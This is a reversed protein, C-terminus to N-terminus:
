VLSLNRYVRPFYSPFVLPHAASVVLTIYVENMKRGLNGHTRPNRSYFAHKLYNSVYLHSTLYM